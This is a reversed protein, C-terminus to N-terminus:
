SRAYNRKGFMVRGLVLVGLSTEKIPVERPLKEERVRVLRSRYCRVCLTILVSGFAKQLIRHEFSPTEWMFCGKLEKGETWTSQSCHIGICFAMSILKFMSM